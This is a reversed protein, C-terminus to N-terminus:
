SFAIVIENTDSSMIKYANSERLPCAGSQDLSGPLDYVLLAKHDQTPINQWSHRVVKSVGM